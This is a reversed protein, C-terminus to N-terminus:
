VDDVDVYEFQGTDFHCAIVFDGMPGHRNKRFVVEMEPATPERGMALVVDADYAIQKSWAVQGLEPPSEMDTNDDPTASAILVVPVQQSLSLLKMDRSISKVRVVESETPTNSGMLQLYDVIVIDPKYQDVKGRVVDPTVIGLGDTSVIHIPPQNEFTQVAWAKFDDIDVDGRSLSRHSWKGNGLIAYMRNRVEHETMELSIIMPVKGQRWAQAAIYLALWSKGIQPYALLVTLMGPGLGAPLCTDFGLLGTYIGGFNDVQQRDHLYAVASDVDSLDLDQVTSTVRALKASESSMIALAEANKGDNVLTATQRILAALGTSRYQNTLQDLYYATPGDADVEVFDRFQTELIDVSPVEKYKVYYEKLEAWVDRHTVFLTDPNAQLVTAIDKNKCIASILAAEPNM